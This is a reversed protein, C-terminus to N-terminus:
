GGNRKLGKGYIEALGEEFNVPRFSLDAQAEAISFSKDEQLRRIQEMDVGVCVGFKQLCWLGALSLGVPLHIKVPKVGIAAGVLDILRNYSLAEPGALAYSKGIAQPRQLAALISEAVDEVYVPQQLYKGSGFVPIWPYRQLLAALRSINRDDGPGYIMSPRLITCRIGRQVAYKEAEIVEDVSASSIQSFRRLSSVLVAQEVSDGLCEVLTPTYRIHALHIVQKVGAFAGRVEQPKALDGTWIEVGWKQLQALETTPRVLCRLPRGTRLLHQMLFRGTYGTAGTVLIM